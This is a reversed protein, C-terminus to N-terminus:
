SMECLFYVYPLINNFWNCCTNVINNTAHFLVSLIVIFHETDHADLLKTIGRMISQSHPPLCLKAMLQTQSWHESSLMSAAEGATM